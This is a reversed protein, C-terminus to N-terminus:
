EENEDSDGEIRYYNGFFAYNLESKFYHKRRMWILGDGKSIVAVDVPGGVTEADPSMRRRLSTLNILSEAMEALEDKPLVSVANLTGNVFTSRRFNRIDRTLQKYIAMSQKELAGKLMIDSKGIASSISEYLLRPYERFIQELYSDIVEGM